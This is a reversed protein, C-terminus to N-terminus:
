RLGRRVEEGVQLGGPIRTGVDWGTGGAGSVPCPWGRGLRWRECETYLMGLWGPLRM